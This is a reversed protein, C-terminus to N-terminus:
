GGDRWDTRGTRGTLNRATDEDFTNFVERLPTLGLKRRERNLQRIVNNRRISDDLDQLWGGRRPAATMVGPARQGTLARLAEGRIQAAARETGLEGLIAIWGTYFLHEPTEPHTNSGALGRCRDVERAVLQEDADM